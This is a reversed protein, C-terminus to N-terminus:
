QSLLTEVEDIHHDWSRPTHAAVKALVAQRRPSLNAAYDELAQLWARGDQPDLYDAVEGGVERHAPIDSAVVPVGLGLAEAIPLGFGEVLSPALLARAGKLLRAVRIDAVEAVEVVTSELAPCRELLDVASEFGSRRRGIIVLRAKPTDSKRVWERWVQLLFTLNKRAEITGLVVFYPTGDPAGRWRARNLFIRDVGLTVVAGPPRPLNNELVYDDWASKTANSNFIILSGHNAMTDIRRRHVRAQESEYYEPHSIPFLDHVMFLARGGSRKIWALRQPEHLNMHSVHLYWARKQIERQRQAQFTSSLLAEYYANFLLTSTGWDLMGSRPEVIRTPAVPTGIPEALSRVLSAFSKNGGADDDISWRQLSLRAVHRAFFPSIRGSYFPTTIFFRVIGTKYKNAYYQAYAFEVRDIGTPSSQSLRALLRSIDIIRGARIDM